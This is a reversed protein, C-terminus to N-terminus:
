MYVTHTRIIQPRYDNLKTRSDMKSKQKDSLQERDKVKFYNGSSANYHAPTFLSM